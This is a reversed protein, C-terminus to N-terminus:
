GKCFGLNLKKLGLVSSINEIIPTIFIQCMFIGVQKKWNVSKGSAQINEGQM